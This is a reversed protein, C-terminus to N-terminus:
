FFFFVKCLFFDPSLLPQYDLKLIVVGTEKGRLQILQSVYEVKHGLVERCLPISSWPSSSWDDVTTVPRRISEKSTGERGQSM